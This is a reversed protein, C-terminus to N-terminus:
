YSLVPISSGRTCWNDYWHCLQTALNPLSLRQLCRLTFGVELHSIGGFPYSGMYVVHNIPWSHLRLLINLQNISISRPNSGFLAPIDFTSPRSDLFHSLAKFRRLIPLMTWNQLYLAEFLLYKLFYTLLITLFSYFLSSSHRPVSGILYTLVPPCSPQRLLVFNIVIKSKRTSIVLHGCGNGYRVRFNLM